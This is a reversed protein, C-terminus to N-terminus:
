VESESHCNKWCCAGPPPKVGWRHPYPRMAIKRREEEQRIREKKAKQKRREEIEERIKELRDNLKRVRGM